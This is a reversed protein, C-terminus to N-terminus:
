FADVKKSATPATGYLSFSIGLVYQAIVLIVLGLSAARIRQARSGLSM